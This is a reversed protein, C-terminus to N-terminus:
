HGMITLMIMADTQIDLLTGSPSDPFASAQSFDGHWPISSTLQGTGKM